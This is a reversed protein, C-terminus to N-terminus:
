ILNVFTLFIPFSPITSLKSYQKFCRLYTEFPLKRNACNIGEFFVKKPRTVKPYDMVFYAGDGKTMELSLSTYPM